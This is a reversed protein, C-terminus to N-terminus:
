MGGYYLMANVAAQEDTDVIDRPIGPYIQPVFSRSPHLVGDLNLYALNAQKARIMTDQDRNMVDFLRASESLEAMAKSRRSADGLRSSLRYLSVGLNNRATMLLLVVRRQQPRDQPDEFVFRDIEDQMRRSVREYYGASAAFDERRFLANAMAYLLNDEERAGVSASYFHELATAFDGRRYDIYGRRYDTDRSSYGNREAKDYLGYARSLDEKDYYHIDALGAYIAGFRAEPRVFRKDLADEYAEIAKVYFDSAKAFSDEDSFRTERWNEFHWRGAWHLADIREAARRKTLAPLADYSAIAKMIAKREEERVGTARFFRALQYHTEPLAPDRSAGAMLLPQVGDLLERDILYGGLEAYVLADVKAKKESLLYEKIPLIEKLKDARIFYRAMRGMYADKRGKMRVLSAYAKRASELRADREAGAPLDDAWALYNDGSLLIADADKPSWDLITRKLVAEAKSYDLLVESEMRAYEMAARKDRPYRSLIEEYKKEALFFQKRAAYANAYRFHWGKSGQVGYAKDFLRESLVYDEDVVARFGERYIGEARVPKYVFRYGLFGLGALGIITAAAAGLLPLINKRFAYWFSGREAELEEGTRREFGKPVAIRKGLMRGLEEAVKRASEGDVLLKIVAAAQQDDLVESAIGKEIELRLNLPYSLLSDQLKDLQRETLAVGGGGEEEPEETEEAARKREKGRPPEPTFEFEAAPPPVPHEEEGPMGEDFSSERPPPLDEDPIRFGGFPEASASPAEEGEAGGSLMGGRDEGGLDFGGEDMPPPAFREGSREEPGEAATDAEAAAFASDEFGAGEEFGGPEEAAGADERPASSSGRGGASEDEAAMDAFADEFSSMEEERTPSASAPEEASELGEFGPGLPAEPEPEAEVPPEVGLDAGESPEEGFDPLSIDEFGASSTEESAGSRPAPAESDGAGLVLDALASYDEDGGLAAPEEAEGPEPEPENMMSAAFDGLDFASYEDQAPELAEAEEAAGEEPEEVAEVEEPPQLDKLLDDSFGADRTFDGAAEFADPPATTEPGASELEPEVLEAPEEEPPADLDIGALLSSFDPVEAFGGRPASDPAPGLAAGAEAGPPLPKVPPPPPLDVYPEGKEELVSDEKALARIIKKLRGIERPDPM